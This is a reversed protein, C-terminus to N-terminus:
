QMFGQLTYELGLFRPLFLFEMATRTLLLAGIRNIILLRSETKSLLCKTLEVSVCKSRILM